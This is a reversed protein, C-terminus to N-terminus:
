KVFFQNKLFDTQLNKLIYDNFAMTDSIESDNDALFCYYNDEQEEVKELIKMLEEDTLTKLSKKTYKSLDIDDNKATKKKKTFKKLIASIFDSKITGNHCMGLKGDFTNFPHTNESNVIGESAYRFHIVLNKNKVLEYFKYFDKFRLFGKKIKLVSDDVWMLGAGHPNSDWCKKLRQYSINKGAPKHIIVCM